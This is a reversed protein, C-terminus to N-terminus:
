RDCVSAADRRLPLVRVVSMTSPGVPVVECGALIDNESRVEVVISGEGVPVNTFSWQGTWTTRELSPDPGMTDIYVPRTTESTSITHGRQDRLTVRAGEVYRGQCDLVRGALLGAESDRPISLAAHLGEFVPEFVTNIGEEPRPLLNVEMTRLTAPGLDGAPRELVRYAIWSNASALFEYSGDGNDTALSCGEECSEDAPIQNNAFVQVELGRVVVPNGMEDLSGFARAELMASELKGGTPTIHVGLCSLDAAAPGDDTLVQLGTLESTEGMTGGLSPGGDDGGTSASAAHGEKEDDMMCSPLLAVGAITVFARSWILMGQNM